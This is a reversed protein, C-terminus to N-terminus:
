VKKRPSTNEPKKILAAATVHSLVKDQGQMMGMTVKARSRMSRIQKKTYVNRKM